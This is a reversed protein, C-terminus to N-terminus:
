SDKDEFREAHKKNERNIYYLIGFGICVGVVFDLIPYAGDMFQFQVAIGLAEIAMGIFFWGTRDDHILQDTIRILWHPAQMDIEQKIDMLSEKVNSIEKQLKTKEPM